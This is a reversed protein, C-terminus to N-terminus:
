AILEKTKETISANFVQNKRHRLEELFRWIEEDDSQWIQERFLDFDLIVSVLEPGFPPAFAEIM